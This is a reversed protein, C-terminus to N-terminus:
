ANINTKLGILWFQGFVDLSKWVVGDHLTWMKWSANLAFFTLCSFEGSNTKFGSKKKYQKPQKDASVAWLSVKLYLSHFCVVRFWFPPLFCFLSLCASNAKSLIQEQCCGVLFYSNQKYLALLNWCNLLQLSRRLKAKLNAKLDILACWFTFFILTYSNTSWLSQLTKEWLM